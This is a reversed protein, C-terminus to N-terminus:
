ATRTRFLKWGAERVIKFNWLMIATIAVQGKAANSYPDRIVEMGRWIPAVANRGPYSTLAAINVDSKGTGDHPIRSSVSVGGTKSQAWDLASEDTNNTRFLTTAYAFSAPGMVSRLDGLTYANIGDVMGAFGASWKAWTTKSNEAGAAPLESLFGNVNPASGDGNIVQDDMEDAMVASLDRRLINELGRLTYMDEVRFLYRASLRVPALDEGVFSAANADIEADRALMSATTGVPYNATGVPVSPMAVGLRAAVSRTFVRNLVPAQSGPSEASDAVPTVTDARDEVLLLEVPLMGPRDGEKGLLAQRVEVEPGEKITNGTVAEMLFPVLSSRGILTDLERQEGDPNSRRAEEAAEDETVLAARYEVELTPIAKTAADMEAVLEASPETGAALANRKEVAANLRQRAESLKLQLEQSKLM